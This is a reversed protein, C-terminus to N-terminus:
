VEEKLFQRVVASWIRDQIDKPVQLLQLQWSVEELVALVTDADYREMARRCDGCLDREEGYLEGGCRRCRGTVPAMQEDRLPHLAHYTVGDAEKQVPLM